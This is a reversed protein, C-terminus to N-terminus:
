VLISPIEIIGKRMQLEITSCWSGLSTVRTRNGGPAGFMLILGTNALSKQKRAKSNTAFLM